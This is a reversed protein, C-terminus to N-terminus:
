KRLSRLFSKRKVKSPVTMLIDPNAAAEVASWVRLANGSLVKIIDDKAYGRDMLGQVLNPMM